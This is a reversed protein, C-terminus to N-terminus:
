SAPSMELVCGRHRHINYETGEVSPAVTELNSSCYNRWASPCGEFALEIELDFQRIEQMTTLRHRCYALIPFNDVLSSMGAMSIDKLAPKIKNCSNSRKNNSNSQIRTVGKGM